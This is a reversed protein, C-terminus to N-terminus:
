LMSGVVASKVPSAPKSTWIGSNTGAPCTRAEVAVLGAPFADFIRSKVKGDDLDLVRRHYSLDEVFGGKESWVTVNEAMTEASVEQGIIAVPVTVKESPAFTSAVSGRWPLVENEVYDEPNTVVEIM